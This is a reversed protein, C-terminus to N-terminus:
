TRTRVAAGGATVRVVAQRSTATRLRVTATRAARLRVTYARRGVRVRIPARPGALRVRVTVRRGTRSTRVRLTRGGHGRSVLERRSGATNSGGSRTAGRAGSRSGTGKAAAVLVWLPRGALDVAIGVDRLRRDLLVARHSRSAMWASVVAAATRQGAGLDEGIRAARYGARRARERARSGDPAAHSVYGKARMDAAHRAASRVLAPVPTWRPLGREAREAGVLCAVAKPSPKARGPCASAAVPWALSTAIALLLARVIVPAASSRWSAMTLCSDTLLAVARTLCRVARSLRSGDSRIRRSGGTTSSAIAASTPPQPSSVSGADTRVSLVSVDGVVGAGAVVAVTGAVVDEAVVPM